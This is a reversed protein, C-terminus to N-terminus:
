CCLVAGSFCTCHPPPWNQKTKLKCGPQQHAQFVSSEAALLTPVTPVTSAESSLSRLSDKVEVLGGHLRQAKAGRLSGPQGQLSSFSLGSFGASTLSRPETQCDQSGLQSNGCWFTAGKTAKDKRIEQTHSGQLRM